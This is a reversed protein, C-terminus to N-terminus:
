DLKFDCIITVDPHLQLFSAPVQPDVKGYVTKRIAERKAEGSALLLIRRAKLIGGMGLTIASHPVADLSEFNGSNAQRTSESLTVVHTPASLAAAPENFGVHGNRGIGLLQLEIGGMREYLADYRACEAAADAAMGNPVFTNEKNINVKDFLNQNMFYRYSQPDDAGLGVYEDLNISHVDAFSVEGRAYAQALRGYTGVPTSGTALGLVCDPKRKVTEAIIKAACESLAEYNEVQVIKM